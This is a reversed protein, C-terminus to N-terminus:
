FIHVASAKFTVYVHSGQEINMNRLSYKTIYIFLEVGIDVTVERVRLGDKIEKVRGAFSNRASSAFPEKSIIIDEPNIALNVSGRAGSSTVIEVDENVELLTDEDVSLVKGKLINKMGVFEAVFSSEPRKFIEQPYDVQVIRGDRMVAIRDGLKLAEDFDHTVHITTTKLEQHLNQLEKQFKGQTEPDLASLPEDLLLIGPTTILARSLAVRQKEGGSLTSVDRELLHEIGFLDVIDYLRQKQKERDFSRVKLGFLINDEVNLHPFLMYDQYVMGINREEPPSATIDRSGYLIQGSEPTQLGAILELLITKGTGTPGLIVFYEGEKIELNIDKISFDELRKTLGNMKLM